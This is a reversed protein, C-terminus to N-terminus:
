RVNKKELTSVRHQLDTILMNIRSHPLAEHDDFTRSLKFALSGASFVLYAGIAVISAFGVAELFENM